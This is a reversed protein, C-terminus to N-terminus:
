DLIELNGIKKKNTQTTGYKCRTRQGTRPTRMDRRDSEDDSKDDNTLSDHMDDKDQKEVKLELTPPVQGALSSALGTSFHNLYSSSFYCIFRDM